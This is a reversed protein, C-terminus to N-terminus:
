HFTTDTKRTERQQELLLISRSGRAAAPPGRRHAGCDRGEASTRHRRAERGRRLLGVTLPASSCFSTNM